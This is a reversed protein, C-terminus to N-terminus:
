WTEREAHNSSKAFLRSTALQIWGMLLLALLLAGGLPYFFVDIVPRYFTEDSAMPELADITQYIQELSQADTARFYQGGTAQAISKLAEENLDASPNVHRTGLLSRRTMVEAGVGVTYITVNHKQALKVAEEPALSGSTNDGDTLLVLVRHESQQNLIQKISVGIADGIATQRGVLGLVAEDLFTAVTFRDFTLPAQLYATDAFLVLGIRDGQRREIFDKLVHKVIVLRDVMQGNLQMDQQAMSGSLDVAVMLDRGELPRGVPEGQWQPRALAALLLLWILSLVLHPLRTQQQGTGGDVLPMASPMLLKITQRPQESRFRRYLWPLPLLLLLWPWIFTIM